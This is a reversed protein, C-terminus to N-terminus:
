LTNMEARGHTKRKYLPKNASESYAGIGLKHRTKAVNNIYKIKM